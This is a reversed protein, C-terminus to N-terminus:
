KGKPPPGLVTRQINQAANDPTEQAGTRIGHQYKWSKIFQGTGPIGAWLGAAEAVDILVKEPDDKEGTYLKWAGVPALIAKEIADMTPNNFKAFKGQATSIGYQAADGYWGLPNLLATVIQDITWSGIDDKNPLGKRVTAAIMQEAVLAMLATSARLVNKSEFASGVLGYWTNADGGFTTILKTWGTDRMMRSMNRGEGAQFARAILRDAEMVAQAENGHTDMGQRYMALWAPFTQLRDMVAFGRMMFDAVMQKKEDMPGKSKIIDLMERNFNEERFRMENPSLRRIEAIMESPHRRIDYIAQPYHVTLFKPNNTTPDALLKLSDGGQVVYSTVNGGLRAIVMGLRRNMLFRLIPGGDHATDVGNTTYSKLWPLFEGYKTAGATERLTAKVDDHTLFKSVYRVAEGAATDKIVAPLHKALVTAYDLLAPYTAGTVTKTHSTSTTPRLSAISTSETDAQTEGIHSRTRDAVQPFYGGRMEIKQGDSTTITFPTLKKWKPEIGKMRREKAAIEPRLSELADWIAQVRTAERATMKNLAEQVLPSENGDKDRLGWGDLGIVRNEETGLNLVWSFLQARSMPRDMTPFQIGISDTEHTRDYRTMDKFAELLKVKMDDGMQKERGAGEDILHKINKRAPGNIDGGDLQDIIWEIKTMYANFDRLPKSSKEGLTETAGGVPNPKKSNNERAVKDLRAREEAFNYRRGEIIMELQSKAVHEINKLADHVARLENMPVERWNRPKSSFLSPDIDIPEDADQMQKVWAALEQQRQVIETNPIRAFEYRNALENWQAQFEGGALGLKAQFADKQGDRGYRYIKESEERALVAERYLFHNLIEQEKAKAAGAYDNKLAAAYAEQAARRQTNLILDPRIKWPATNSIYASAAIRFSAIKPMVLAENQGARDLGAQERAIRQQEETLTQRDGAAARQEGMQDKLAQDVVPRAKQEAKRFAKLEAALRRELQNGNLEEVAAARLAVPDNLLSPHALDMRESVLRDSLAKRQKLLANLDVNYEEAVLSMQMDAPDIKAPLDGDGKIAALAEFEPMKLTEADVEARTKAQLEKYAKKDERGMERMVKVTLAERAAEVGDKAMKSYAEYEPGTMGLQEQTYDRTANEARAAEIEKDSAILRDFVGRMEDTLPADAQILQAGIKRLWSTFKRMPTVLEPTPAKGTELYKLWTDAFQEHHQTTIESRDKVGMWKLVKQYDAKVSADATPMESLDGLLELYFHGLEHFVTSRNENQFLTIPFRRPQGDRGPSFTIMGRAEDQGPQFLPQGQMVSERMAPTIDFGTQVLRSAPDNSHLWRSAEESTPFPGAVVKDTKVDIVSTADSGVDSLLGYTYQKGGQISGPGPLVVEGVKGGGLRKLVDNAVQPIIKDYFAKMGAGGVSLDPGSIEHDGVSNLPSDVLKQAADKGIYNVLQDPGVGPQSILIEKGKMGVLHLTQPDWKVSDVKKSLDYHEANQEGNAFSVKDFGNEAAYRIMSKIALTTWAKTDTVFPGDPIYNKSKAQQLEFNYRNWENIVDGLKQDAAKYEAQLKETPLGKLEAYDLETQIRDTEQAALEKRAVADKVKAFLEKVTSGSEFGESRGKQAWDSQIEQLFLVKKGEADTRTDFRVHAVINRVGDWHPSAFNPKDPYVGKGTEKRYAILAEENSGFKDEPQRALWDDFGSKNEPLALLAETYHTGGPVTYEGFRPAFVGANFKGELAVLKEYEALEKTTLDDQAGVRAHLENLRATQSPSMTYSLVRTVIKVGGQEVFNKIDEVSVKGKQLDLWEPLGVADLEMQKFKGEKQRAALWSKAQAVDVLGDKNAIKSLDPVTRSLESYFAPAKQYLQTVPVADPGLLVASGYKGPRPSTYGSYGADLVSSEFRNLDSGAAARLGEPDAEMPYLNDLQAAYKHAGSVGPEKRVGPGDIYFYARQKIRPDTASALRDKEAGPAGTGHMQPDLSALGDASTFHVGKISVANAGRPPVDIRVVGATPGDVGAATRTGDPNGWGFETRYRDNIATNEQRWSALRGGSIYSPQSTANEYQDRGILEGESHYAGSSKIADGVVGKVLAEIKDHYAGAAKRQETVSGSGIVSHWAWGEMPSIIRLGNKVSSADPYAVGLKDLGAGIKVVEEPTLPRNLEFLIANAQEKTAKDHFPRNWGIGEQEALGGDNLIAGFLKATERVAALAGPDLAHSGEGGKAAPLVVHFSTAPNSSLAWFGLGLEERTIPLGQERAARMLLDMKENHFAAKDAPTAHAFGPFLQNRVSDGPIAEVTVSGTRRNFADLFNASAKQPSTKDTIAKQTAWIASQAEENKWGLARAVNRVRQQMFLSQASSPADNEYGGARMMHMDIVPNLDGALEPHLLQTIMSQMFPLVKQSKLIGMVEGQTKAAWIQEAIDRKANPYRGAEIPLGARAQEGARVSHIANSLVGDSPSYLGASAAYKLTLLPDGGGLTHFGAESDRYFYKGVEGAQAMELLKQELEKVGAEDRIAPPAGPIEKTQGLERFRRFDLGKAEAGLEAKMAKTFDALKISPDALIIKRATRSAVRETAQFLQVPQALKLEGTMSDRRSGQRAYDQMATQIDTPRSGHIHEDKWVSWADEGGHNYYLGGFGHSQLKAVTADMGVTAVSHMWLDNGSLPRDTKFGLKAAEEVSYMKETSADFPVYNSKLGVRFLGNQNKGAYENAIHPGASVHAGPGMSGVNPAADRNEAVVSAHNGETGSWTMAPPAVAQAFRVEPNTLTRTAEGAALGGGHVQGEGPRLLPSVRGLTAHPVEAAAGTGVPRDTIGYDVGKAQDLTDHTDRVFSVKRSEFLETPTMGVRQAQVTYVKAQFDAIEKAQRETFVRTAKTLEAAIKDRLLDREPDTTPLAQIAQMTQATDAAIALQTKVDQVTADSGGIRLMKGIADAHESPAVRALYKEMPIEIDGGARLAIRFEDPSTGFLKGVQREADLGKSQFYSVLDEAKISSTEFPTGQLQAKTVEEFKAQARKNLVSNQAIAAMREFVGINEYAAFTAFNGVAGEFLDPSDGHLRAGLNSIGSMIPALLAARATKQAIDGALTQTPTTLTDRLAVKAPNGFLDMGLTPTSGAGPVLGGMLAYTTFFSLSAETLDAAPNPPLGNAQRREAAQKQTRMASDAGFLFGVGKQAYRASWGLGELAKGALVMKGLEVPIEQVAKLAERNFIQTDLTRNGTVRADPNEFTKGTEPDVLTPSPSVRTPLDKTAALDKLFNGPSPNAMREQNTLTSVVWDAATDWATTGWDLGKIVPAVFHTATNALVNTFSGLESVQSNIAAVREREAKIAAAMSPTADAPIKDLSNQIGHLEHATDQALVANDPHSIVWSGAPTGYLDSVLKARADVQYQQISRLVAPPTVGTDRGIKMAEAYQAPNYKAGRNAAGFLEQKGTEDVVVKDLSAFLSNTKEDTM